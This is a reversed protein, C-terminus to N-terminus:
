DTKENSVPGCMLLWQPGDVENCAPWDIWANLCGDESRAKSNSRTGIDIRIENQQVLAFSTLKTAIGEQEIFKLLWKSLRDEGTMHSSIGIVRDKSQHANEVMIFISVLARLFQHKEITDIELKLPALEVETM